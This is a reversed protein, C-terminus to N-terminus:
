YSTRKSIYRKYLAVARQQTTPPLCANCWKLPEILTDFLGRPAEVGIWSLRDAWQRNIWLRAIFRARKLHWSYGIVGCGASKQYFVLLEGYTNFTKSELVEVNTCGNQKLWCSMMTAYTESQVPHDPSVGPAVVITDATAKQYQIARQLLPKVEEGIGTGAKNLDRGLVLIKGL